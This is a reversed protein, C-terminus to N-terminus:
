FPLTHHCSHSTTHHCHTCNIRVDAFQAVCPRILCLRVQIEIRCDTNNNSLRISTGVNCTKSCATWESNVLQCTNTQQGADSVPRGVTTATSAACMGCVCVCVSAIGRHEILLVNSRVRYTAMLVWVRVPVWKLAKAM